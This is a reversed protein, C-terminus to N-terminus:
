EVGRVAPRQDGHGRRADDATGDVDRHGAQHVEGLQPLEHCCGYATSGTGDPGPWVPGSTSARSLPGIITAFPRVRDAGTFFCRDDWTHPPQEPGPPIRSETM